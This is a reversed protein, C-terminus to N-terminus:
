VISAQGNHTILAKSLTNISLLVITLIVRTNFICTACHINQSTYDAVSEIALHM